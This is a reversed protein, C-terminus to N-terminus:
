VSQADGLRKPWKKIITIINRVYACECRAPCEDLQDKYLCFGPCDQSGTKRDKFITGEYLGNFHRVSTALTAGCSHNFLFFGGSLDNFNVQYGLIEIDADELFEDRSSWKSGCPLCEKFVPM